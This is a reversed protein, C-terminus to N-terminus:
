NPLTLIPKSSLLVKIDRFARDCEQDWIFNSEKKTLTILPAAIRSYNKMYKRYYSAMGLFGRLQRLTRPPQLDLIKQVKKPNVTVRGEKVVMGLFEVERCFFRSKVLNIQFDM